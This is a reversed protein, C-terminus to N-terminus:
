LNNKNIRSQQLKSIRYIEQVESTFTEIKSNQITKLLKPLVIISLLSIIIIILITEVVISLKNNM